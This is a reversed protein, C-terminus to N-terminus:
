FFFDIIYSSIFLFFALALILFYFSKGIIIDIENINNKVFDVFPILFIIFILSLTKLNKKIQM